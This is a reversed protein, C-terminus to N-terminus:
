PLRPSSLGCLRLDAMCTSSRSYKNAIWLGAQEDILVSTVDRDLFEAWEPVHEDFADADDAEVLIWDEVSGHAHFRPLVQM